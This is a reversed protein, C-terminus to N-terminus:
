MQFALTVTEGTGPSDCRYNAWITIIDIITMLCYNCFKDLKEKLDGSGCIEHKLTLYSILSALREVM